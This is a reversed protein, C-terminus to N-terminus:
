NFCSSYYNLSHIIFAPVIFDPSNKNLIVQDM